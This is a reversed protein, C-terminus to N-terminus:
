RATAASSAGSAARRVSTSMTSEVTASRRRAASITTITRTAATSSPTTRPLLPALETLTSDVVAAPVMIWIARPTELKAVLEALSSAATAGSKALDRAAQPHIDFVVCEHRAGLLRRVMNSGMRGLGIMGLKM